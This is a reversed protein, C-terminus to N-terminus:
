CKFSKVEPTNSPLSALEQECQLWRKGGIRAALAKLLAHAAGGDPLIGDRLPNDSIGSDRRYFSYLDAAHKVGKQLREIETANKLLSEIVYPLGRGGNHKATCNDIYFPDSYDGAVLRISFANPDLNMDPDFEKTYPWVFDHSLILPICGALISDFHRKASPSDGGPCPCVNSLRMGLSYSPLRGNSKLTNYSPTCKYDAQMVKRLNACTGHNGSSYWYSAPREIAENDRLENAEQDFKGNLWKGDPNPYPVLVNKASCRPYMEVFTTSVEVVIGIAPRLLRQTNIYHFNGRKMKPHSVGHLPESWVLIHDSGNNRKWYTSTFGFLKEWGDYDGELADYIAKGYKSTSYDSVFLRGKHFEMSPLYPVYFLKAEEPNSTALCSNPHTMIDRVILELTYQGMQSGVDYHGWGDTKTVNDWHLWPYPNLLGGDGGNPSYIPNHRHLEEGTRSNTFDPTPYVYVSRYLPSDRFPCDIDSADISKSRTARPSSTLSSQQKILFHIVFIIAVISQICHRYRKANKSKNKAAPSM